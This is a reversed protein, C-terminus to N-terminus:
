SVTLHYGMKYLHAPKVMVTVEVPRRDDSYVIRFVEIVPTDGTIELLEYEETTASRAAVIDDQERPPYGMETLLTPSGGPIKRRDLLRTGSALDLPYYSHTLEAPENDLLGLRVRLAAVEGPEVGLAKAVRVPTPAECVNLVRNSGRQQRKSAETVWSYPEGATSPSAYAAPEITQPARDRVFVGSGSRGELLQEAKLINLARQITVNSTGYQEELQATTPLKRGPEWEGSMILFRVEAAVRHATPRKDIHKAM